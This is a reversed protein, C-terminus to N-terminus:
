AFFSYRPHENRLSSISVWLICSKGRAFCKLFGWAQSRRCRKVVQRTASTASVTSLLFLDVFGTQRQFLLSKVQYFAFVGVFFSFLPSSNTEPLSTSSKQQEEVNPSARSGAQMMVDEQPPQLAPCNGSSERPLFNWSSPSEVFYRSYKPIDLSTDICYVAYEVLAFLGILHTNSVTYELNGFSISWCWSVFKSYTSTDELSLQGLFVPFFHGFVRNRM